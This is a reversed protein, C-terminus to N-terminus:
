LDYYMVFEYPTPRVRIQDVEKRKVKVWNEILDETFVGDELLYHYDQELANLSKNLSTPLQHIKVLEEPSLEDLNRDIPLGPDIKHKIGDMGAMIM